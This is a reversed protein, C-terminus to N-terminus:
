LLLFENCFGPAYGFIRLPPAIKPTPGSASPPRPAFGEAAPLQPGPPLAGLRHFCLFKPASGGSSSFKANKQLVLKIRPSYKLLFYHKQVTAYFNAACRSEVPNSFNPTASRCTVESKLFSQMVESRSVCFLEPKWTAAARWKLFKCILLFQKCFSVVTCM